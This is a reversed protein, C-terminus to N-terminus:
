LIYGYGVFCVRSTQVGPIDVGTNGTNHIRYLVMGTDSINQSDHVADYGVRCTRNTIYSKLVRMRYNQSNQFINMGKSSLETLNTRVEYGYGPIPYTKTSIGLPARHTIYLAM